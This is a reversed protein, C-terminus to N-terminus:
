KDGTLVAHLEGGGSRCTRAPKGSAIVIVGYPRVYAFLRSLTACEARFLNSRVVVVDFREPPVFTNLDATVFRTWYCQGAITARKEAVDIADASKDIGVVLGAPGVLKAISLATDGVGCELDFVRLGRGIGCRRLADEGLDTTSIIRLGPPTAEIGSDSMGSDSKSLLAGPSASLMELKSVLKLM